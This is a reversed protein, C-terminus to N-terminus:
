DIIRIDLASRHAARAYKESDCIAAALFDRCEQSTAFSRSTQQITKNGSLSFSKFEEM